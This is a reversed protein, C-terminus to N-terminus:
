RSPTASRIPARLSGAKRLDGALRLMMTLAAELEERTPQCRVSRSLEAKLELLRSGLEAYNSDSAAREHRLEELPRRGRTLEDLDSGALLQALQRPWRRPCAGVRVRARKGRRAEAIKADITALVRKRRSETQALVRAPSSRSARRRRASRARRSEVVRLAAVFRRSFRNVGDFLTTPWKMEKRPPSRLVSGDNDILPANRTPSAHSGSTGEAGGTGTEPSWISPSFTSQDTRRPRAPRGSHRGGGQALGAM